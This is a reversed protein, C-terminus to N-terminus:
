GFGEEKLRAAICGSIASRYSDKKGTELLSVWLVKLKGSMSQFEQSSFFTESQKSRKKCQDGWRPM